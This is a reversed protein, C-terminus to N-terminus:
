GRQQEKAELLDLRRKVKSSGYLVGSPCDQTKMPHCQKLEEREAKKSARTQPRARRSDMRALRSGALGERNNGSPIPKDDRADPPRGSRRLHVCVM